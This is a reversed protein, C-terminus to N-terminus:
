LSKLLPRNKEFRDQLSTLIKDLECYFTEWTWQNERTDAQVDDQLEGDMMRRRGVRTKRLEAGEFEAKAKAIITDSNKRIEQLQLVASDVM